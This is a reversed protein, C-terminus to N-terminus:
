KWTRYHVIHLVNAKTINFMKGLKISSIGEKYKQRIQDVIEQTLKPKGTSKIARPKPPTYNEDAWDVNYIIRAITRSSVNYKKSLSVLTTDDNFTDRIFKVDNFTLKSSHNNDGSIKTLTEETHKRGLAKVRMKSRTEESVERGSVGEGGETLNYGFVKNRSQFFSIWYQEAKNCIDESNLSQIVSFVFSEVGYKKIAKHIAFKEKNRKSFAISLHKAWRAEPAKTKGVYVKNNQINHILYVFYGHEKM